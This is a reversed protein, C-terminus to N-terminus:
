FKALWKLSEHHQSMDLGENESEESVRLTIINDTIKYLLMSGFFAFFSVLILAIIHHAFVGFGEHLFSANEGHAFM